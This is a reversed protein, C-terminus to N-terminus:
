GVVHLAGGSNAVYGVGTLGLATALDLGGFRSGTDFAVRGSDETLVIEEDEYPDYEREYVREYSPEYYEYTHLHDHHHYKRAHHRRRYTRPAPAGLVLEAVVLVLLLINVVREMPQAAAPPVAASLGM